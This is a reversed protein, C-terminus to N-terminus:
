WDRVGPRDPSARLADVSRRQRAIRQGARELLARADEPSLPTLVADDPLVPLTGIGPAREETAKPPERGASGDHPRPEGGVETGTEGPRAADGSEGGAATDGPAPGEPARAHSALWRQKAVELNFRADAALAADAALDRSIVFCDIADKMAARDDRAMLCVGRNYWAAARRATPVGDGDLSRVFQVEAARFRGLRALVVGRNFFVLSPDLGHAATEVMALSEEGRGAEALELARRFGADGASAFLAAVALLRAGIM